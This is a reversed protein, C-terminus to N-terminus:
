WYGDCSCKGDKFHHYRNADRIIIEVDMVKSIFETATHCDNCVRLNAALIISKRKPNLVFAHATATKEAHRCLSDLKEEETLLKSNTVWRTDPEFGAQIIKRYIEERMKEIEKFREYKKSGSVFQYSKGDEEQYVIGPIKKIGNEIMLQRINDAKENLGYYTYINSLLIYPPAKKEDISLLIKFVKEGLEVNNFKRCGALLASWLSYNMRENIIKEAEHFRGSRAFVDVMVCDVIVSPNHNYKTKMEGYLQNAEDIMGCHSFTNLMITFTQENMEVNKDVMENFLNMAQTGKGHQAYCSLMNNYTIISLRKQASEEVLKEFLQQATSQYAIRSYFYIMVSVIEEHVDMGKLKLEDIIDLGMKRAVYEGCGALLILYTIKDPEIHEKMENFVVMAKNLGYEITSPNQTNTTNQIHAQILCNWIAVNNMLGKSKLQECEEISVEPHGCKTYFNVISALLEASYDKLTGTALKHIAKGEEFLKSDACATLLINFTTSNPEIGYDQMETIIKISKQVENNQIHAQILCNWVAINNMLGKSQLKECEGISVEPHGCKTYFSIISTLLETSCDKVNEIAQEHIFKGEEFLNSDTCAKLIITYTTSDPNLGFQQMETIIEIAKQVENNQIHAQILCNWVAVNNMLGKLKLKECEKIATEPHGCKTYFNIISTLLETSCDKVNEIAQEHILKGEEFLKSDACATLLINFTTSNPEIGYDQMETIVEIAQRVEKNQVHAQILCTWTIVNAEFGKTKMKEFQDITNNLEITPNNLVQGSAQHLLKGEEFLKSDACAKLLINFTTSNPEIGYDQMETIVEIAQRVEKNQIYAQILCNWVINNMLGKSKLQECEKIATEPHGCKTYFNVISALLESSYDKLTGTALKHIAKGEEFLKSDACATLLINFTTSNPEVGYDQMETIIEIAQRVEKNQIYAQILCNWGYYKKIYKTYFNIISTLLKLSSNDRLTNNAIKHILIGEKYLKLKACATLLISFTTANPTVKFQKMETVTDIAKQIENIQIYAEVLCTFSVVNMLGKSKMKECENIAIEPHGCKTYFNIISTLLEVSCNDKLTNTTIKHILKGEAFLKTNACATILINFTASDPCIGNDKMEHIVDIAKKINNEQIYAQILSNWTIITMWKQQKVLEIEEIVLEPKRLKLAFSIITTSLQPSALNSKKVLQYLTMGVQINKKVTAAKLLPIYIAYNPEIDKGKMNLVIALARELDDNWICNNIFHTYLFVNM